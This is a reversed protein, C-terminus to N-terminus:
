IIVHPCKKKFFHYCSTLNSCKYPWIIVHIHIAIPSSFTNPLDFTTLNFCEGPLFFESLYSRKTEYTHEHVLICHLLFCNFFISFIVKSGFCNVLLWNKHKNLESFTIWWSFNFIFVFIFFFWMHKIIWLSCMYMYSIKLNSLILKYCAHPWVICYVYVCILILTDIKIIILM